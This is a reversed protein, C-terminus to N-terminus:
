TLATAAAFPADAFALYWFPTATKVVPLPPRMNSALTPPWFNPKSGNAFFYAALGPAQGPLGAASHFAHVASACLRTFAAEHPLCEGLLQVEGPSSSRAAAARRIDEITVLLRFAAEVRTLLIYVHWIEEDSLDRRDTRLVHCAM